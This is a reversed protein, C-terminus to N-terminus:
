FRRFRKCFRCIRSPSSLRPAARSRASCVLLGFRPTSREICASQRCGPAAFQRNSASPHFLLIRLVSRCSLTQIASLNAAAAPRQLGPAHLCAHALHLSWLRFFELMLTGRKCCFLRKPGTGAGDLCLPRFFPTYRTGENKVVIFM